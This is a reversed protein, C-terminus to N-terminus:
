SSLSILDCKNMQSEFSPFNYSEPISSSHLVTHETFKGNKARIIIQSLTRPDPLSVQFPHSHTLSRTNRVRRLPVPRVLVGSRSLDISIQHCHWFISQRIVPISLTTTVNYLAVKRFMLEQCQLHPSLFTETPNSVNPLPLSICCHIFSQPCRSM